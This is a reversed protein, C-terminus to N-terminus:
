TASSSPNSGGTLRLGCRNEFGVYRVILNSNIQSVKLIVKVRVGALSMDRVNIPM